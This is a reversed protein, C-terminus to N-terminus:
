MKKKLFHCFKVIGGEGGWFFGISLAWLQFGHGFHSIRGIKLKVRCVKIAFKVKRVMKRLIYIQFPPTLPQPTKDKERGFLFLSYVQTPSFNKVHLDVLTPYFARPWPSQGFLPRFLSGQLACGLMLGIGTFSMTSPKVLFM